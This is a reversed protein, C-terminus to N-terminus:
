CRALAARAADLRTREVLAGQQEARDVLAGFDFGAVDEPELTASLSRWLARKGAIGVGLTELEMLCTLDHDGTVRDSLKLRTVKEGMWGAAAKLPRRGFGLRERLAVLTKRDTEIDVALQRLECEAPQGEYASAIRRAIEVGAAAGALHDSLYSDLADTPKVNSGKSSSQDRNGVRAAGPAVVCM